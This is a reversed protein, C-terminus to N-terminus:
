EVAAARRRVLTAYAAVTREGIVEWSLTREFHKRVLSRESVHDRQALEVLAAACADSQQTPWRVGSSGVLARFAPIDTVCPTLGCAMAEILAYGSGEHHSGSVFIDAASYYDPLREHPVSGLMVVRDRLRESGACYSEVQDILDAGSYIMGCRCEPIRPLAREIGALVTTPDKNADLRGVWLLAPEGNIGTRERAWNREVPVFFTSAEPIELVPVERPLGVEHWREGLEAATFTVADVVEFASRWRAREWRKVPWARLRPVHGSHDQLVIAVKQPLVDRLTRVVGPFMLGNVHVIDPKARAVWDVSRTLSHWPDPMAPADDRVFYYALGDHQVSDDTSFRQIIQVHAGATALARSLGTLTHYQKLLEGSTRLRHDYALNLQVIRLSDCM